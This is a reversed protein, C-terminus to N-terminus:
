TLTKLVQSETKREEIAGFRQDKFKIKM